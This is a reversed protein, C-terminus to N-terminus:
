KRDGKDVAHRPTTGAANWARSDAPPTADATSGAVVADLFRSLEQTSGFRRIQGTRVDRLEFSLRSLRQTLRLIYGAHLTDIAMRATQAARHEM